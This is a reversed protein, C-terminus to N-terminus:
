SRDEADFWAMYEAPSMGMVRLKPAAKRALTLATDFDHRYANKWRDTRSSPIPEVSWNGRKGLCKRFHTVAWRDFGRRVVHIAFLDHDPYTAPVVSVRYNIPEVLIDPENM